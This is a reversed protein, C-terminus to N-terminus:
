PERSSRPNTAVCLGRQIRFDLLRINGHLKRTKPWKVSAGTYNTLKLVASVYLM